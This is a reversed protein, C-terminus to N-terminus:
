DSAARFESCINFPPETEIMDEVCKKTHALESALSYFIQTLNLNNIVFVSFLKISEGNIM